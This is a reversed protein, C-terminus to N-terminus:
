GSRTLMFVPIQRTTRTQYEGISPYEAGLKPWLAARTADALEEAQM